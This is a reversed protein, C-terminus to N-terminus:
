LKQVIQIPNGDPDSLRAPRLAGLFDYPPSLSTVGAAILVAYDDDVHDTWFVLEASPAGSPGLPVGHVEFAARKSSLGLLFEGLRAEVHEPEGQKPTRFTEVFGFHAVYFQVSLEVDDVYFNVFANRFEMM